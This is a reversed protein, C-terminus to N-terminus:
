PGTPVELMIHTKIPSNTARLTHPAQDAATSCIERVYPASSESITTVKAALVVLDEASTHYPCSGFFRRLDVDAAPM